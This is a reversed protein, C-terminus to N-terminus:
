VLAELLTDTEPEAGDTPPLGGRPRSTFQASELATLTAKSTGTRRWAM